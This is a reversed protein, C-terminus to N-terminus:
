PSRRASNILAFDARERLRRVVPRGFALALERREAPSLLFTWRAPLSRVSAEGREVALADLETPSLESIFKISSGGLGWRRRFQAVLAPDSQRHSM